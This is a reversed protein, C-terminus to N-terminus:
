VQQSLSFGRRLGFNFRQCLRHEIRAANVGGGAKGVEVIGVGHRGIQAFRVGREIGGHVPEIPGGGEGAIAVADFM